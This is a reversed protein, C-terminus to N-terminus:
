GIGFRFPDGEEFVLTSEATVFSPGAITPILDGNRVSVRGRFISGIVSEQQWIQGEQLDGSAYLCAMHASTGTGCPSRDYAGGPCLVFSKSDAESSSVCVEVHDVEPYGHENLWVRIDQTWDTLEDVHALDVPCPSDHTIFFWNGGWAIEGEALPTKVHADRRYAPVNEVEIWGDDLIKAEVVGVPTELRYVERLPKRGLYDLARVVCMTGHGCMGLMGANNFFIVGADNAPDEPEQLLAGVLVDSGRPELIMARRLHDFESAFRERRQAMSGSGIDPFGSIVIRTPEGAAHTDLIKM